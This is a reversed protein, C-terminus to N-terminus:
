RVTAQHHALSVHICLVKEGEESLSPSSRFVFRVYHSGEEERERERGGGCGLATIVLKEPLTM